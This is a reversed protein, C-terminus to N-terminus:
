VPVTALDLYYAALTRIAGSPVGTTPDPRLYLHGALHGYAAAMVRPFPEDWHEHRARAVAEMLRNNIEECDRLYRAIELGRKAPNASSTLGQYYHGVCFLRMPLEALRRLTQQYALPHNLIPLLGPRSGQGMACDGGILIGEREWYYGVSGRTHGPLELVRLEVGAGLDIIDGERLARAVTQRPIRAVFHERASAAEHQRGMLRYVPVHYTDFLRGADEVMYTDADHLWIPADSAAQVALNGGTHDHHGHTNLILDVDAVQRGFYALYPAIDADPSTPMGTDILAAREGEVLYLKTHGGQGWDTGIQLLQRHLRM